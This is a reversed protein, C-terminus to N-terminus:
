TSSERQATAQWAALVEAVPPRDTFWAVNFWMSPTTASRVFERGEDDVTTLQPRYVGADDLAFFGHRGHDPDLVWYQRCGTAEYEAYKDQLDIRRTSPSLIEIVLDAPGDLYHDTCRANQEQSWFFVDPLRINGGTVRLGFPEGAVYSTGDTAFGGVTLLWTRLDSHGYCILPFEVAYGDVYEFIEHPLGDGRVFADLDIRRPM